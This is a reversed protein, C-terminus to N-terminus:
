RQATGGCGAALARAENKPFFPSVKALSGDLFASASACSGGAVAALRRWATADARLPPAIEFNLASSFEDEAHPFDKSRYLAIGRYLHAEGSALDKATALATRSALNYDALAADGQGGLEKARGRLFLARREGISGHVDAVQDPTRYDIESLSCGASLFRRSGCFSGAADYALDFTAGSIGFQAFYPNMRWELLGYVRLLERFPSDPPPAKPPIVPLNREAPM